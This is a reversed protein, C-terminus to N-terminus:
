VRMAEPTMLSMFMRKRLRHHEGDRLAVSGVDQLLFFANPPLPMKRTFRGPAYSMRAAAEGMVCVAKQLMSRTEFADCRYRQFRRTDFTYAERICALTHDGSRNHASGDM